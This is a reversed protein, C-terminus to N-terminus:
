ENEGESEEFPLSIVVDEAARKILWESSCMFTDVYGGNPDFGGYPGVTPMDSQLLQPFVKGFLSAPTRECLVTPTLEEIPWPEFDSDKWGTPVERRRQMLDDYYRTRRQARAEWILADTPEPKIDDYLQEFDCFVCAHGVAQAMKPERRVLAVLTDYQPQVPWWILYPLIPNSEELWSIDNMMTFRALSAKIMDLSLNPQTYWWKAFPTSHYIGRLCCAYENKIM